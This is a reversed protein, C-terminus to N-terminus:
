PRSWDITNRLGESLRVFDTKNFGCVVRRVDMLANGSGPLEGGQTLKVAPGIGVIDTIEDVIEAMNTTTQGGVNYVPYTGHLLVNFMMEVADRVYCITRPEKGPYDMKIIGDTLAQQIFGPMARQDGPRSGPGYTLGLRASKADVGQQRYAYVIAEGCRKGEIYGSRPHYPNTTGIDSESAVGSLGSYVESSSVFLFKGGPNLRALLTRTVETNIRITEAPDSTFKAPQAYGASHIVVDTTAPLFKTLHLNGRKAIEETYDAPDSHCYGLVTGNMGRKKLLALTALFHTGLLGTAGTVLVSKGELFSFDVKELVKEADQYIIDLKNKPM